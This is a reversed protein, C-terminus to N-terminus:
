NRAMIKELLKSHAKRQADNMKTTDALIVQLDMETQKAEIEKQQTQLELHKTENLVQMLNMKRCSNARLEEYDEDAEVTRAKGKGRRKAAKVGKPHVPSEVDNETTPTDNNGSSSYNGYNSLKTRKSSETTSPSRWKPQRRLEFWHKDFNCKKNYKASHLIHARENIDDLNSGSGFTKVKEYVSWRLQGNLKSSWTVDRTGICCSVRPSM